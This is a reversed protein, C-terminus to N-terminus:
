YSWVFVIATCPAAALIILGATYGKAAEPDIWHAFAHQMFVWALFAMSFPKVLWNVFLTVMLGKPRRAIGGLASFDVKLMMPYIMLWLLVGIPVNVQSGRGFELKSLAATVDPLVRGLAMGAVMCLFVWMTLYREFFALRKPTEVLSASQVSDRDSM